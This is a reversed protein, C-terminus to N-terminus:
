FLPIHKFVFGVIRSAISLPAMIQSLSYGLRGTWPDLIVCFSGELSMRSWNKKFQRLLLRSRKLDEYSYEQIYLKFCSSKWYGLACFAAQSIGLASQLSAGGVRFSHGRIRHFDGRVLVGEVHIV